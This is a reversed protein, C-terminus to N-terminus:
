NYVTMIKVLGEIKKKLFFSHKEVDFYRDVQETLYIKTCFRCMLYTFMYTYINTHTHM